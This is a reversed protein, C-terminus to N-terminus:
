DVIDCPDVIELGGTESVAGGRRIRQQRKLNHSMKPDPATTQYIHTDVVIDTYASQQLIASKTPERIEHVAQFHNKHYLISM